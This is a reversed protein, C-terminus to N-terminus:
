HWPAATGDIGARNDTYGPGAAGAKALSCPFNKSTERVAFPLQQQGGLPM